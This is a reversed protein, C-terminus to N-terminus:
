AEGRRKCRFARSLPLRTCVGVAMHMIAPIAHVTYGFSVVRKSLYLFRIPRPVYKLSWANQRHVSSIPVATFPYWSVAGWVGRPPQIHRGLEDQTPTRARTM